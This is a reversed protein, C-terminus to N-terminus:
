CDNLFVKVPNADGRKFLKEVSVGIYKKRIINDAIRGSFGIRDKEFNSDYPITERNLKQAPLWEDVQYVEKVIGKAVALVYEASRVSELKRKWCGRTCDYLELATLSDKYSQNIKIIAVNDTIDERKLYEM